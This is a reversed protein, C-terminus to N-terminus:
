RFTQYPFHFISIFISLISAAVLWYSSLEESVRDSFIPLSNSSTITLAIDDLNDNPIFRVDSVYKTENNRYEITLYIIWIILAPSVIDWLIIPFNNRPLEMHDHLNSRAWCLSCRQISAGDSGRFAGSSSTVPFMMGSRNM